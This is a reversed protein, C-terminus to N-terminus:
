VMLQLQLDEKKIKKMKVRIITTKTLRFMYSNKVKLFLTTNLILM